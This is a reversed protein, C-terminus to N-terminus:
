DSRVSMRFGLERYLKPATDRLLKDLRELSDRRRLTVWQINGLFLLDFAASEVWDVDEQYGCVAMAGTKQLFTNLRRGDTDLTSCSGFYIVRYTCRGVMIEALDDLSVKEEDLWLGSQKGKGGRYGHFSFYLVPHTKFGPQLYRRLSHELEARTAVRKHLYPVKYDKLRELLHLVPEVSSRDKSGDWRDTELCYVGKTQDQRRGGKM